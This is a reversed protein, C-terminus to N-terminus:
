SDTFYVADLVTKNNQRIRKNPDKNFELEVNAAALSLSKSKLELVIRTVRLNLDGLIENGESLKKRDVPKLQKLATLKWLETDDDAGLFCNERCRKVSSLEAGNINGLIKPIHKGFKTLDNTIPLISTAESILTELIALDKFDGNEDGFYLCFAPSNGKYESHFNKRNIVLLNDRRLGLDLLHNDLVEFIKDKLPSDSGIEIVQYKSV